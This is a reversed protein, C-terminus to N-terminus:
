TRSWRLWIRSVMRVRGCGGRRPARDLPGGCASRHARQAQGPRVPLGGAGRLGCGTAGQRDRRAGGDRASRHDHGPRGPLGPDGRRDSGPGGGSRGAGAGPSPRPGGRDPGPEHAVRRLAKRLAFVAGWVEGRLPRIAAPDEVLQGLWAGVSLDERGAAAALLDREGPTMQARIRRARGTQDKGRRGQGPDRSPPQGGGSTTGAFAAGANRVAESAAAVRVGLSDLVKALEADAVTDGGNETAAMANVSTGIRAVRVRASAWTTWCCRGWWRAVWRWMRLWCCWGRGWRWGPGAGRPCGCAAM